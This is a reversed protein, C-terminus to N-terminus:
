SPDVQTIPDQSGSTTITATWSETSDDNEYVRLTGSDNEVRSRLRQLAETVIRGTNSGGEINRALLADAIAENIAASLSTVEVAPPSTTSSPPAAFVQYKTTADPNTFWNPSVACRRSAGTYDDVYRSQGAGTGGVLMVIHNNFRDDTSSAGTALDIYAAGGGQATGTEMADLQEAFAEAATTSGDIEQVDVRILDSGAVFSDYVNAPVVMFDEVVPLVGTM